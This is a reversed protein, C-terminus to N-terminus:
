SSIGNQWLTAFCVGYKAFTGLADAQAIAGSIHDGAGFDYETFGLKTGPYYKEISEFVNPLLPLFEAGTDTIWSNEVFSDDWLSRYSDFRARVCDPNDYHSCSREGCAGRQETYYHLDLVDLLRVGAEDSAKKMEDLYYDIYWRYGNESKIQDWDKAGQLSVFAMYGYLAPGFVEAGPDMKKVVKALSISKEMLGICSIPEKQVRPHTSSWLAPENDLSYAQIGTSTSSDGLMGILYNLYEDMYVYDDNADPTDSFPAGKEFRVEKFRQSPAVENEEVTGDADASVNGAPMNMIAGSAALVVASVLSVTKWLMKKKM